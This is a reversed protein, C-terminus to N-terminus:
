LEDEDSNYLFLRIEPPCRDKTEMIYGKFIIFPLFRMFDTCLKTINRLQYIM